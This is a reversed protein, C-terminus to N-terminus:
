VQVPFAAEWLEQSCGQQAGRRCNWPFALCAISGPCASCVPGQDQCGWPMLLCPLLRSPLQETILPVAAWFQTAKSFFFISFLVM